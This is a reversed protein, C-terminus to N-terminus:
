GGGQLRIELIKAICVWIKSIKWKIELNSWFDSFGALDVHNQATKKGNPRQNQQLKLPSWRIMLHSM